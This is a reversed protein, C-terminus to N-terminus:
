IKTSRIFHSIGLYKRNALYGASRPKGDSLLLVGHRVPLGAPLVL